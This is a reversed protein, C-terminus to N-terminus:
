GAIQLLHWNHIGRHRLRIEATQGNRTRPLLKRGAYVSSAPSKLRLVYFAPHSDPM